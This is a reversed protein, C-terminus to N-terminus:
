RTMEAIENLYRKVMEQALRGSETTADQDVFWEMWEIGKAVGTETMQGAIQHLTLGKNKGFTIEFGKVQDTTLDNTKVAKVKATAPVESVPHTGNTKRQYPIAQIEKPGEDHDADKADDICFLGNLAYKRAYSSTAGTIQAEDMGKKQEPERAFASVVIQMEGDSLTAIAKVYHRTGVLVMEDSLTLTLGGLHPKVADLIDECSRYNFGAFKNFRGKPAKLAKQIDSLRVTIEKM